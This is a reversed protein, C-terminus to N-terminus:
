RFVVKVKDPTFQLQTCSTATYVEVNSASQLCRALEDPLTQLGRDFSWVSWKESRYRKVLQSTDETKDLKNLVSM